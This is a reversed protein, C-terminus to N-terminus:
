LLDMNKGYKLFLTYLPKNIYFFFKGMKEKQLISAEALMDLHKIVTKKSLHLEFEIPLPLLPVNCTKYEKKIINKQIGFHFIIDMEM